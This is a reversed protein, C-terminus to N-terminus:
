PTQPVSHGADDVTFFGETYNVLRVELPAHDATQVLEPDDAPGTWSSHYEVYRGDPRKLASWAHLSRVRGGNFVIGEIEYYLVPRQQKATTALRMPGVRTNEPARARAYRARLHAEVGEDSPEGAISMSSHFYGRSALLFVPATAAEMTWGTGPAILIAHESMCGIIVGDKGERVECPAGASPAAQEAAPAEAEARPEARPQPASACAPGLAVLAVIFARKRSM